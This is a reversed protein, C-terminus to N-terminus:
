DKLSKKVDEVLKADEEVSQEGSRYVTIACYKALADKFEQDETIEKLASQMKAVIRPDTNKPFKIEYSKPFDIDYGQSKFTPINPAAPMPKASCVGLPIFDGKEIYDRVNLYNAALVDVQDGMFAALREAGGAGVDLMNMQIGMTEEMKSGVYHTVTGYVQSYRVKGPNAKAYAIFEQLNKWGSSKKVVVTYTNDQIATGATLFDKNYDFDITETAQQVTNSGTHGFLMTYGDPKAVMATKSGVIGTGGPTNVVVFTQGFKDGLKKALIRAYIDTDGGANWPVIMNVSKTPWDAALSDATPKAKGCGACLAVTMALLGVKKLLGIKM